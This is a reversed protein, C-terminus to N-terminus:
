DSKQRLPPFHLPAVSCWLRSYCEDRSVSFSLIWKGLYNSQCIITSLYWTFAAQTGVKVICGKHTIDHLILLQLRNWEKTSRVIYPVYLCLSVKEKDLDSDESESFIMEIRKRKGKGLVQIKTIEDARLIKQMMEVLEQPDDSTISLFFVLACVTLCSYSLLM